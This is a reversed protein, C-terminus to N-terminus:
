AGEKPSHSVVRELDADSLEMVETAACRFASARKANSAHLESLSLLALALEGRTM